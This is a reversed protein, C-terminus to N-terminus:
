ICVNDDSDYIDAKFCLGVKAFIAIDSTV